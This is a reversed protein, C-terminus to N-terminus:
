MYDEPKMDATFFRKSSNPETQKYSYQQKYDQKIEFVDEYCRIISQELIEIKGSTTNSLKDLKKLILSLANDTPPKKKLKRM